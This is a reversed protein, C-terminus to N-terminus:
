RTPNVRERTLAQQLAAISADCATTLTRGQGLALALSRVNSNRRSLIIIQTHVSKFRHLAEIAPTLSVGSQREILGSLGGLVEDISALRASMEKEMREMAADDSEAIHPAHLVQLERMALVARAVLSEIRFRDAPSATTALAELAARFTDAAQRAPGFSLKQAKLNTNEVALELIKRDVTQYEAFHQGFQELLRVEQTYGLERLLPALATADNRTAQKAQEAERAFAISAEDTDAMVARISADSANNFQWRLDAALRKAEAHQRDGDHCSSAVGLAVLLIGVGSRPQQRPVPSALLSLTM